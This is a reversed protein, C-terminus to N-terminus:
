CTVECGQADVSSANMKTTTSKNGTTYGQTLNLLELSM